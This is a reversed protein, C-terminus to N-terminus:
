LKDIGKIFREILDEHDKPSMGKQLIQEALKISLDGIEGQLDVLTKEKNSAIEKDADRKLQAVEDKIKLLTEKELSASSEKARNYIQQAEQKATAIYSEAKDKAKQAKQRDAAAQKLDTTVLEARKDMAVTLPKWIFRSILLMLIVFSLAIVLLDGVAIGHTAAITM